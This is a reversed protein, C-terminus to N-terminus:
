PQATWEAGCATCTQVMTRSLSGARRTVLADAPHPCPETRAPAPGPGTPAAGPTPGPAKRTRRQLSALSTLVQRWATM